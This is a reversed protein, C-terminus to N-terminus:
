TRARDRARLIGETVPVAAVASLAALPMGVVLGLVADGAAALAVAAAVGAVVLVGAISAAWLVPWPARGRWLPYPAAGLAALAAAYLAVAAVAPVPVPDGPAAAEPPTGALSLLWLVTLGLGAIAASTSALM